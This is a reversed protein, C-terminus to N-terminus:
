LKKNYKLEYYLRSLLIDPNSNYFASINNIAQKQASGRPLSRIENVMDDELIQVMTLLYDECEPYLLVKSEISSKWLDALVILKVRVAIFYIADGVVNIAKL